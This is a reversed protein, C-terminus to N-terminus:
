LQTQKENRAALPIRVSLTCGEGPASALVMKGGHLSIRSEINRLGIGKSKISPDFGVGDDAIQVTLDEEGAQLRVFVNAAKAYKAVNNLQEQVIRYIMLQVPKPINLDSVGDGCYAYHTTKGIAATELLEQLAEELGIDGLSPPVLSKSLKRLEEIALNLYESSKPLLLDREGEDKISIDIFMKCTALIQNINDHLERGLTAREKEQSQITAETIKQQNLIKTRQVKEQLRKMETVDQMAGIVRYPQGSENYYFFGKGYINKYTGDACRFRFENVYQPAKQKLVNAVASRITEADDPHLNQFWWEAQTEEIGQYQFVKEIEGKGYFVKGTNLDWDYVVDSTAQAITEYRVNSWHLKEQTKKLDSVDQMVGIMRYPTSGGETQRYLVNARGYVDCYDGGAKRFRFEYAGKSTGENIMSQVKDALGGIDEPHVKEYWWRLTNERMDPTYGFDTEVTLSLPVVTGSQIDWDWIVDNTAAGVLQHIELSANLRESIKKREISHYVAKELIREDFEGKILYDQAGAKIAEIAVASDTLGSLIIIPVNSAAENLALFTELGSGDPLFLDLFIIDPREKVCVLAEALTDTCVTKSAQINGFQLYQQFLLLDGPNDEVILIHLGEQM